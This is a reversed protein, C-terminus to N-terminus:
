EVIDIHLQIHAKIAVMHLFHIVAQVSIWSCISVLLYDM